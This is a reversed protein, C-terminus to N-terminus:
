TGLAAALLGRLRYMRVKITGEPLGTNRAIDIQRTDSRYQAFLLARNAPDLSPIAARLDIAQHTDRAPAASGRSTPRSSSPSM